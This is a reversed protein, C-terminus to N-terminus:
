DYSGGTEGPGTAAEVVACGSASCLRPVAACCTAHTDLDGPGSNPKNKAAVGTKLGLFASIPKTQCEAWVAAAYRANRIQYRPGRVASAGAYGFSASQTQKAGSGVSRRASRTRSDGIRFGWDGIAPTEGAGIPKTRRVVSTKLELVCFNPKNSMKRRRATHTAGEFGWVVPLRAVLGAERPGLTRRGPHASFWMHEKGCRMQEIYIMDGRHTLCFAAQRATGSNPRPSGRM